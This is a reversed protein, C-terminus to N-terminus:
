KSSGKEFAIPVSIQDHSRASKLMDVFSSRGVHKETYADLNITMEHRTLTAWAFGTTQTEYEIEGQRQTFDPQREEWIGSSMGKTMEGRQVRDGPRIAHGQGYWSQRQRVGGVVGLACDM